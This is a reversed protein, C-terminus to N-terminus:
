VTLNVRRPIELSVSTGEGLKSQIRMRGGIKEVTERAHHLGLGSGSSSNSKGYSVGREGIRSLLLEPIGKGNDVITVVGMTPLLQIGVHVVGDKEIAEVANNLLNSIASALDDSGSTLSLDEGSDTFTNIKIDNRNSFEIQKEVVIQSVVQKLSAAASDMDSKQHQVEGSIARELLKTAIKNIRSCSKQILDRKEESLGDSAAIVMNLASLPSRIDHSVQKAIDVLTSHRELLQIQKTQSLIASNLDTIQKQVQDLTKVDVKIMYRWWIKPKNVPLALELGLKEILLSEFVQALTKQGSTILTTLFILAISFGIIAVLYSLFYSTIAVPLKSFQFSLAVNSLGEVKCSYSSSQPQQQGIATIAGNENIIASM